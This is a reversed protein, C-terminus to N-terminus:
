LALRINQLYNQHKWIGLIYLTDFMKKKRGSGYRIGGCLTEKHRICTSCSQCFDMGRIGMGCCRMDTHCIRDMGDARGSLKGIHRLPVNREAPFLAKYRRESSSTKDCQGLPPKDGDRCHIDTSRNYFLAFLAM